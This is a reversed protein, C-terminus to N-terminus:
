QILYVLSLLTGALTNLLFFLWVLFFRTGYAPMTYLMVAVSLLYFATWWARDM